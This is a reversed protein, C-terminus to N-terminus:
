FIWGYMALVAKITVALIFACVIAVFCAATVAGIIQGARFGLSNNNKKM